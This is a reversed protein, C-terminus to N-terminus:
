EQHKERARAATEMRVVIDLTDGDVMLSVDGFRIGPNEEQVAHLFSLLDFYGGRMKIAISRVVIEDMHVAPQPAFSVLAVNNQRALREVTRILLGQEEEDPLAHLLFAQRARMKQEMQSDAILKREHREVRSLLAEAAAREADAATRQATFFPSIVLVYLLFLGLGCILAIQIRERESFREMVRM